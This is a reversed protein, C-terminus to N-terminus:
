VADDSTADYGYLWDMQQLFAKPAIYGLTKLGMHAVIRAPGSLHYNRANANAAAIARRVRPNRAAQYAAFAADVSAAGDCCRTLIFGDEIALNAGQALFPLTPHAADGILATNDRAWVNAVEHRFLGWLHTDTVRGLIDQLPACVDGFAQRLNAPDDRHAWGEAAWTDREQVAVVNLRGGPLPYTVVHRKPAMWIQAVAEAEPADVIARWAVQGTFFPDRPGNLAARTPSHIGEAGVVIDGECTAADVKTGLHLQVSAARCGEALVDILDARHFFRYPPGGLQSLDFRTVARGARADMPQVAQATLSAADLADRLGLAELARAGNPTIQIGAGVRGLAEAQEFVEVRAGSRAFALATTLGGIGGGVVCVRRGRNSGGRQLIETQATM